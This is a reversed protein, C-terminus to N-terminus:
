SRQSASKRPHGDILFYQIRGNHIIRTPYRKLLLELNREANPAAVDIVLVIGPAHGEARCYVDVQNAFHRALANDKTLKIEVIVKGKGRSFVFDSSGVGHDSEHGLNVDLLECYLSASQRLLNHAYKENMVIHDDNYLFRAAGRDEIARKFHDCVLLAFDLVPIAPRPQPLPFEEALAKGNEYWRTIGRSDVTLNYPSSDIRVYQKLLAQLEPPHSLISDFIQAKGIRTKIRAKKNAAYLRKAVSKLIKAIDKSAEGLYGMRTSELPSLIDRPILIVPTRGDKAYPHVPLRFDKWRIRLTTSDIGCNHFIRSSYQYLDTKIISAIMDGLRDPGLGASLFMSVEFCEPDRIGAQVMRRVSSLAGAKLSDSVIAGSTRNKSYGLGLGAVEAFKFGEMAATWNEDEGQSEALLTILKSFHSLVRNYSDKLEPARSKKVLSPNIFLQTDRDLIPDFAGENAFLQKDLHFYDTTSISM